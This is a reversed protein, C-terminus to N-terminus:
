ARQKETVYDTEGDRPETPLIRMSIDANFQRGTHAPIASGHLSSLSSSSQHILFATGAMMWGPARGQEQDVEDIGHIDVPCSRLLSSSVKHSVRYIVGNVDDSILLSGDRAVVVGAPRGFYATGSQNIFGSLFDNWAIAKGNQFRTRVVKYGVPKTRNWSGHYAIFADGWYDEPFQNANYFVMGIPAADADYTLM